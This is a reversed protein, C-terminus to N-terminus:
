PKPRPARIARRESRESQAASMTAAVGKTATSQTIPSIVRKKPAKLKRVM